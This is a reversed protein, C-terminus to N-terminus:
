KQIPYHLLGGQDVHQKAMEPLKRYEEATPVRFEFMPEPSGEPLKTYFKSWAMNGCKPCEMSAYTTGDHIDKTVFIFACKACAYRNLRPTALVKPTPPVAQGRITRRFARTVNSM